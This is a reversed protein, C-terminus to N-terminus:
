QPSVAIGCPPPSNSYWGVALRWFSAPQFERGNDPLIEAVASVAFDIFERVIRLGFARYTERSRKFPYTYRM